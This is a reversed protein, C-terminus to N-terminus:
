QLPLRVRELDTEGSFEASVEVVYMGTGSEDVSTDWVYELVGTEIHTMAVSDVLPTDAGEKRITIYADAVADGDQDDPDVATGSGDEYQIRVPVDEGLYRAQLRAM